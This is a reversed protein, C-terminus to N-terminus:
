LWKDIGTQVPEGFISYIYSDILDLIQELYPGVHYKKGLSLAPKLYKKIGGEHVTFILKDKGCKVCKGTLPPRRHIENCDSCRFTQQSFKRLNGLIDKIFHKEIVLRAVDESDVARIKEALEMQGEVKKMMDELTKYASCQVGYNFNTTPHTFGSGVFPEGDNALVDKVTNVKVSSSHLGELSKEYLELPYENLYEFDLIQDDVEGADIKVNMVLPADQTSGRRSPLFKRSFNLLVDGLLMIAAEDGDCDRRIAAHMYPSAMIGLTESFGIFRCAVGACNHPAMCVGLHGVLDDRTKVNYYPELKYLRVLLEDIFNCIRVFVDDGKEDPSAPSSPILIDHPMMELIQEPSELDKGYVDKLYGLEKLKEVSTGIEIPKFSSLPLETADMRITGDKNVQLNHKARLIGKEIREQVKEGSSNSLVGKVVESLEGEKIGLNSLASNFYEKIEIDRRKYSMQRGSYEQTNYELETKGGCKQCKSFISECNCTSCFYNPFESNVFGKDIASKFTKLRGGENGLSFLSNPSGNIKRLKSKEPRGMRAGIFEGSKDRIKFKSNKNIIDLINEESNYREIKVDEINEIGLNLLLAKSTTEDIMVDGSKVEHPIGLLELARKGRSFEPTNPLVSASNAFRIWDILGLFQERSIENWYYIYKPYLSVGFEESYEVADEFGVNWFDKKESSQHSLASLEEEWWEEVYGAKVLDANRNLVDSFTVLIDGLYLIEIIEKKVENVEELTSLQRITGNALKVIPGEISDCSTAVCGKIPKEIKLQTGIAIFDNTVGMTAPHVAVASFGSNRARGYRFRFSGSRSPHGFIPRGAVLDKMYVPTSDGKTKGSVSKEHIDLYGPIWDFGTGVVGNVKAQGYLRWGKAAKQALGEALILCFGSRLNNTNVRELNKYNSVELKESPDGAIQFPMNKSLFLTEEETPMYQLNAVRNHFDSLEVWTRNIEDETPDYKAYGFKERLFDILFLALCSATTGASRIPGSFSAILYDEGKLTKGIKIGTFGEIPSSVVGLTFYAFGIRIACDIAELKDEFKCFNEDSIEDAIKFVITPNLKGYEGEMELIREDMGSNAIQPYITSILGVVKEAMSLAVPIEVSDVPDYGQSRANNAFSYVDEVSNKFDEFYKKIKNKM